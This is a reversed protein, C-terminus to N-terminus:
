CRKMTMLLDTSMSQVSGDKLHSCVGNYEYGGNNETREADSWGWAGIPLRNPYDARTIVRVGLGWRHDCRLIAEPVYPTQMERVSQESLIRNGNAGM